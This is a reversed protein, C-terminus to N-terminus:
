YVRKRERDTIKKSLTEKTIEKWENKSLELKKETAWKDFDEIVTQLLSLQGAIVGRTFEDKLPSYLFEREVRHQSDKLRKVWTLVAQESALDKLQTLEMKIAQQSNLLDSM